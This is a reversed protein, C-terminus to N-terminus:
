GTHVLPKILDQQNCPTHLTRTFIKHVLKKTKCSNLQLSLRTLVKKMQWLQIKKKKNFSSSKKKRKLGHTM